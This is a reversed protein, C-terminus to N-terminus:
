LLYSPIGFRWLIENPSPDDVEKEDLHNDSYEHDNMYWARQFQRFWQDRLRSPSQNNRYSLVQAVMSQDSPDNMGKPNLPNL